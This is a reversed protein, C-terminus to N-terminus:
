DSCVPDETKTAAHLIKLQPTDSRTEQGPILGLSEANSSSLRLWQIVLSTGKLSSTIM